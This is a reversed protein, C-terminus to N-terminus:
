RRDAGAPARCGSRRGPDHVSSLDDRGGEARLHIGLLGRRTVRGGYGAAQIRVGQLAPHRASFVVGAVLDRLVFWGFLLLFMSLVVVMVMGGYADPPALTHVAWVVFLLWATLSVAPLVSRIRAHIDPSLTLVMPLRKLGQLALWLLAAGLIVMVVTM